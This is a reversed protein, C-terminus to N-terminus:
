NDCYKYKKLRSGTILCLLTGIVGLLFMMLAAGSGKGSGFLATLVPSAAHRAMFPECVNDVM